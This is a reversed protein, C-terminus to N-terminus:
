AHSCYTTSLRLDSSTETNTDGQYNEDVETTPSSYSPTCVVLTTPIGFTRTFLRCPEYLEQYLFTWNTNEVVRCFAGLGHRTSAMAFISRSHALIAQLAESRSQLFNAYRTSDHETVLLRLCDVSGIIRHCCVRTSASGILHFRRVFM